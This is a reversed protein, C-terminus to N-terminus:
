VTKWNVAEGEDEGYDDTATKAPAKPLTIAPHTQDLAMGLLSCADVKDDHKATPFGVLQEVVERMKRSDTLTIMGMEARAQFGRASAAKDAVRPLWVLRCFVDRERMRARLMPEIARRIPGAEGFFARPQHKEMMDILAEIWESATTQGSWWDIGTAGRESNLGWVALETFDGGGDTLAFDSTIYKAVNEPATKVFKFWDRQFYTGEDPTPEQQYLSNWERPPLVNKIQALAEIPYKQPWLACGDRVAPLSLVDWEDGGKEADELLRGALDRENWRTQILVIAGEFQKGSEQAEGLDRWLPDEDEDEIPRELRTYATSLYWRYVREQVVLSDAEVRDKVPDDILFVHAGRGTVATGVGAAAYSGGKETHWRNQSKSDSALGSGEFLSVHEPSAMINRVERGFDTALDSNYSAAIISMEPHRGMFWAPFRRSALESKGHRPPMFIM